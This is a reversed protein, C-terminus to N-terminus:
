SIVKRDTVGCIYWSFSIRLVDVQAILRAVVSNIWAPYSSGLNWMSECYIDLRCVFFDFKTNQEFSKDPCACLNDVGMLLSNVPHVRMWNSDFCVFQIRSHFTMDSWKVASWMIKLPFNGGLTVLGEWNDFYTYYTTCTDLRSIM